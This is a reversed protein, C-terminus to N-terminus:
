NFDSYFLLIIQINSVNWLQSRLTQIAGIVVKLDGGFAEKCELKNPCKYSERSKSCVKYAATAISGISLIEASMDVERSAKPM